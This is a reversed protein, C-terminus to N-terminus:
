IPFASEGNKNFYNKAESRVVKFLGKADGELVVQVTQNGGMNSEAIAELFAQKMTSLPSVVESERNNDGLMALFEQSQRPVVTGTALRPISIDPLPTLNFGITKGGIVPIADPITFNINNLATIMGNIGHIIGNAMTEALGIVGNVIDRFFDKFHQMISELSEFAGEIDGTFVSVFFDLLDGLIAFLDGIMDVVMGIKDFIVAFLTELIPTLVPVLTKLIFDFIPKIRANYLDGIVKGLKGLFEIIKTLAPGIHESYLKSLKTSLYELAPKINQNYSEIATGIVESYTEKLNEFVPHIYEDYTSNLKDAVQDVMDKYGDTVTAMDGLLDDFVGKIGESNQTIPDLITTVLDAGLQTALLSVGMFADSFIGIINATLRQGNEDGLASFIDAFAVSFDGISNNIVTGLDFMQVFYDKIRKQNSEDGLYKALGGTINEAITVGMSAMSGAVKGLNLALSDLYRNASDVVAPDTFITKLSEKITSINNKIGAIREEIDDGLGIKFGEKFLNALEKIREAFKSAKEDADEIADSADAINGLDFDLSTGATKSGTSLENLEDMNSLSKSTSKTAEDVSDTYDDVAGALDEYTQGTEKNEKNQKGFLSSLVNSIAKAVEIMKAIIVNLTKILPTLVQILGSGLISLFEKWQEKLIRTQNAWSDQTDLFDDGIYSLQSMVYKYRLMVKESQSMDKYAKQIGQAMAFQKLNVETMVVGYQKLTETEGTYISKLATSAVDQSVNYFSAMNGSLKTLALAMEKADEASSLMSRGMSMFTSGTRYATLRSMGLSQIATEALADMEGRMNGFAKSVVNDVETIDSALEIAERGMNVLARISVVALMAKGMNRFADSIRNTARTTDNALNRMTRNIRQAGRDVGDTDIRTDIIYENNAM